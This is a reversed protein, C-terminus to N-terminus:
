KGIKFTLNVGYLLTSSTLKNGTGPDIYDPHWCNAYSFFAQVGVFFRGAVHRDYGYKLTGSIGMTNESSLNTTEIMGIGLGVEPAFYSNGGKIYYLGGLHLSVHTWQDLNDYIGLSIPKLLVNGSLGFYTGFNRNIRTGYEMTFTLPSLNLDEYVSGYNFNARSVGVGGRFYGGKFLEKNEQEARNLDVKRQGLAAPTILIFTALLVRFFFNRILM